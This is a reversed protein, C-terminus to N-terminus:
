KKTEFTQCVTPTVLLRSARPGVHAAHTVECLDTAGLLHCEPVSVWHGDQTIVGPVLMPQAISPAHPFGRPGRGKSHQPSTPIGGEGGHRGWSCSPPAGTQCCHRPHQEPDQHTFYFTSIAFLNQNGLYDACIQCFLPKKAEESGDPVYSCPLQQSWGRICRYEWM